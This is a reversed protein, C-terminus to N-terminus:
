YLFLLRAPLMRQLVGPVDPGDAYMRLLEPGNRAFCHKGCLAFCNRGNPVFCPQVRLAFCSQEDSWLLQRLVRPLFMRMPDDEGSQWM